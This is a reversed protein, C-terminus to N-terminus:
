CVCHACGDRHGCVLCVLQTGCICTMATFSFSLLLSSLHTCIMISVDSNLRHCILMDYPSLCISIRHCSNEVMEVSLLGQFALQRKYISSFEQSVPFVSPEYDPAYYKSTTRYIHRCPVSRNVHKHNAFQKLEESCGSCLLTFSPCVCELESLSELEHGSHKLRVLVCKLKCIVSTDYHDHKDIFHMRELIREISQFRCWILYVKLKPM